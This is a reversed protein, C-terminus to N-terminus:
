STGKIRVQQVQPLPFFYSFCVVAFYKPECKTFSNMEESNLLTIETECSGTLCHFTTNRVM